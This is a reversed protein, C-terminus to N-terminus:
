SQWVPRSKLKSRSQAHSSTSASIARKLRQKGISLTAKKGDHDERQEDSRTRSHETRGLLRKLDNVSVDTSVCIDDPLTDHAAAHPSPSLLLTSSSSSNLYNLTNPTVDLPSPNPPPHLFPALLDDSAHTQFASDRTPHAAEDSPGEVTWAAQTHNTGEYGAREDYEPDYEYEYDESGAAAPHAEETYDDGHEAGDPQDMRMDGGDDDDEQEEGEGEPTGTQAHPIIHADKALEEEEIKRAMDLAIPPIGLHSPTRSTVLRPVLDPDDDSAPYSGTDDDDDVGNSDAKRVRAQRKPTSAYNYAPQSGGDAAPEDYRSPQSHQKEEELGGHHHQHQHQQDYEDQQNTSQTHHPYPSSQHLHLISQIEQQTRPSLSVGTPPSMSVSMRSPAPYFVPGTSSRHNLKLKSSSSMTHASGRRRLSAFFSSSRLVSTSAPRSLSSSAPRSPRPATATHRILGDSEAAAISHQSSANSSRHAPMTSRKSQTAQQVHSAILAASAPRTLATTSMSRSRSLTTPTFRARSGGGGVEAAKMEEKMKMKERDWEAEQGKGKWAWWERRAARHLEDQPPLPHDLLGPKLGVTTATQARSLRNNSSTSPSSSLSTSYTASLHTTSSARSLPISCRRYRRRSPSPSPSASASTSSASVRRRSPSSAADAAADGDGDDHKEEQEMQMITEERRRVLNDRKKQRKLVYECYDTKPAFRSRLAVMKAHQQLDMHVNRMVPTVASLRRLIHRNEEDTRRAEEMRRLDIHVHHNWRLRDMHPDFTHSVQTRPDRTYIRCLKSSLIGNELDIVKQKQAAKIKAKADIKRALQMCEPPSSDVLGEVRALRRFHALHLADSEHQHHARSSRLAM